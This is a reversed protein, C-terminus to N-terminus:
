NGPPWRLHPSTEEDVNCLITMVDILALVEPTKTAKEAITKLWKLLPVINSRIHSNYHYTIKTLYVLKYEDGLRSSRITRLLIRQSMMFAELQKLKSGQRTLYNQWDNDTTLLISDSPMQGVQKELDKKWDEYLAQIMQLDLAAQQHENAKRQTENAEHQAENAKRQAEFTLFVLIIGVLGIVPGTIGGITDGIVGTDENFVIFGLPQVFLITVVFLAFIAVLLAWGPNKRIWNLVLETKNTSDSM